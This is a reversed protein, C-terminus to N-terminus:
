RAQGLTADLTDRFPLFLGKSTSLPAELSPAVYLIGWGNKRCIQCIPPDQEDKSPHEVTPDLGGADQEIDQEIVLRCRKPHPHGEILGEIHDPIKALPTTWYSAFGSSPTWTGIGTGEDLKSMDSILLAIPREEAQSTFITAELFEAGERLSSAHEESSGTTSLRDALQQLLGMARRGFGLVGLSPAAFWGQERHDFILQHLYSWAAIPIESIRTGLYRCPPLRSLHCVLESWVPERITDKGRILFDRLRSKWLAWSTVQAEATEFRTPLEALWPDWAIVWAVLDDARASKMGNSAPSPLTSLQFPLSGELSELASEVRDPSGLAPALLSSLTRLAAIREISGGERARSAAVAMPLLKTLNPLHTDFMKLYSIVIWEREQEPASERANETWRRGAERVNDWAPAIALFGLNEALFKLGVGLSKALVDDFAELAQLRELAHDRRRASDDTPSPIEDTPEAIPLGYVDLMFRYTEGEADTIRQLLGPTEESTPVADRITVHDFRSDRRVRSRLESDIRRRLEDFSSLSLVVSRALQRWRDLRPDSDARDDDGSDLKRCASMYADFTAEDLRLETAGQKWRRSAYYLADLIRPMSEPSQALVDQLSDQALELDVAAQYAISVRTAPRSRVSGRELRLTGNGDALQRLHRRLDGPHLEARHLLDYILAERDRKDTTSDGEVRLLDILYARLSHPEHVICLSESFYTHEKPYISRSLRAQHAEFYARDALFCFFARESLVHKLRDVLSGMREELATVKDLEDVVFIPGLGCDHCRRVLTPLERELTPLSVDRIFTHQEKRLATRRSRRTPLWWGAFATAAAVFGAWTAQELYFGLGIASGAFLSIMVRSAARVSQSSTTTAHESEALTSQQELIETEGIVKRFAQIASQLALIERHGRGAQQNGATATATAAPEFFIGQELRDFHRWFDLFPLDAAANDLLRRFELTVDRDTPDDSQHGLSDMKRGAKEALARYLALTIQSLAHAPMSSAPRSRCDEGQDNGLGPSLLEPGHLFIWLPERASVRASEFVSQLAQHVATTKGSGRHGAILLSCGHIRLDLYDELASTLISHVNTEALRVPSTGDIARPTLPEAADQIQITM